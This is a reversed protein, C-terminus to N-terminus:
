ATQIGKAVPQIKPPETPKPENTTLVSGNWTFGINGLGIVEGLVWDTGNWQWVMAPTTLQVLMTADAPPTWTNTDGDWIVLNTVVDTEVILYNQNTM